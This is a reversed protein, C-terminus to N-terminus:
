FDESFHVLLLTALGSILLSAQILRVKDAADLGAVSSLIIAPTVCGVIMAVFHQMALPIAKSFQPIGELQTVKAYEKKYEYRKNINALPVTSTNM